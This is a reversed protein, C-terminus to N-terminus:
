KIASICRGVRQGNSYKTVVELEVMDGIKKNVFSPANDYGEIAGDNIMTLDEYKVVIRWEYKDVQDYWHRMDLDTIKGAVDERSYTINERDTSEVPNETRSCGILFLLIALLFVLHTKTSKLM